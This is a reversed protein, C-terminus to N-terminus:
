RLLDLRRMEARLAERTAEKPPCMPSRYSEACLGLLALSAKVPIPNTEIFMAKCIPYLKLHLDRARKWDGELATHVIRGPTRQKRLRALPRGVGAARRIAEAKESRIV